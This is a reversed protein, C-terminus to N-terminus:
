VIITLVNNFDKPPGSSPIAGRRVALGGIPDHRQWQQRQFAHQQQLSRVLHGSLGNFSRLVNQAHGEIGQRAHEVGSVLDSLRQNGLHAADHWACQLRLLPGAGAGECEDMDQFYLSVPLSHLLKKAKESSKM